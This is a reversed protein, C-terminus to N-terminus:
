DLVCKSVLLSRQSFRAGIEVFAQLLAFAGHLAGVLACLSVCSSVLRERAFTYKLLLGGHAFEVLRFDGRSVRHCGSALLDVPVLAGDFDDGRGFTRDGAGHPRGGTAEGDRRRHIAAAAEDTTESARTGRGGLIVSVM